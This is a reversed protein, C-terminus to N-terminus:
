KLLKKLKSEVEKPMTRDGNLYMSLLPQSVGVKEALWVIKLGKNKIKEKYSM